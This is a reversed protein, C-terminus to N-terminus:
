NGPQLDLEMRSFDNFAQAPAAPTLNGGYVFARGATTRCEQVVVM